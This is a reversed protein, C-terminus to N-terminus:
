ETVEIIGKMYPHPSCHYAYKGPTNFTVSYTEGKGFLDSAKFDATETDPTVDHKANDQNTWTVTTGMKVKITKEVVAFSKYTVKNTEVVDNSAEQPRNISMDAMMDSEHSDNKIAAAGIGGLALITLGILTIAKIRM